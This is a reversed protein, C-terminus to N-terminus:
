GKRSVRAELIKRCADADADWGDVQDAQDEDRGESLVEGLVTGCERCIVEGDSATIVRTQDENGCECRWAKRNLELKLGHRPPLTVSIPSQYM